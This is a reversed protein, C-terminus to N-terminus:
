NFFKNDTLELEDIYEEDPKFVIRKCAILNIVIVVFNTFMKVNMDYMHLGDVLIVMLFIDILGSILRCSMFSVFEACIGKFNQKKSEFVWKRNTVYAFVLSCFWAFFNSYFTSWHLTKACHAYVGTNVAVTGVGFLGYLILWRYKELLKSIIKDM